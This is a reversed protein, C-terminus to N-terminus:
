ESVTKVQAEPKASDPSDPFTRNRAPKPGSPQTASLSQEAKVQKSSILGISAATSQLALEAVPVSEAALLTKPRLTKKEFSIYNLFYCHTNSNM